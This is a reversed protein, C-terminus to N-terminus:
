PRVGDGPRGSRAPSNRRRKTTLRDLRWPKATIGEPRIRRDEEDSRGLALCRPRNPLSLQSRPFGTLQDTRRLTKSCHLMFWSRITTGSCRHSIARRHFFARGLRRPM